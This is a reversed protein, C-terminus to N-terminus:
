RAEKSDEKFRIVRAPNGAAVAGVPVDEIVVSNAGGLADDGVTIGGLIKAGPSITVRDGIKPLGTVERTKSGRGSITVQHYITCDAGIEVGPHIWVGGFHALLLGPGVKAELGISSHNIARLVKHIPYELAVLLSRLPRSRIESIRHRIRFDVTFWFSESVPVRKWGFMEAQRRFDSRILSILGPTQGAATQDQGNVTM